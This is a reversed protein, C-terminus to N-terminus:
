TPSSAVINSDQSLRARPHLAVYIAYAYLDASHKMPQVTIHLSEAASSTVTIGVRRLRMEVDSLLQERTPGQREVGPDIREVAVSVAKIERLTARSKPSDMPSTTAALSATGSLFILTLGLVIRSRPGFATLRVM